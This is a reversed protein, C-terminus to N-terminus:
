KRVDQCVGDTSLSKEPIEYKGELVDEGLAKWTDRSKAIKKTREIVAKLERNHKDIQQAMHKKIFEKTKEVAEGIDRFSAGMDGEMSGSWDANLNISIEVGLADRAFTLMQRLVTMQHMEVFKSKNDLDM